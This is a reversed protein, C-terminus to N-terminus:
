GIIPGSAFSTQFISRSVISFRSDQSPAAAVILIEGLFTPEWVGTEFGFPCASSFLFMDTKELWFVGIQSGDSLDEINSTAVGNSVKAERAEEVLEHCTKQMVSGIWTIMVNTVHADVHKFGVTEQTAFLARTLDPHTWFVGVLPCTVQLLEEKTFRFNLKGSFVLSLKSNYIGSLAARPPAPLKM